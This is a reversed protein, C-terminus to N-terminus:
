RLWISPLSILFSTGIPCKISMACVLMGYSQGIGSTSEILIFALTAHYFICNVKAHDTASRFRRLAV